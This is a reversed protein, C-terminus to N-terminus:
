FRFPSTIKQWVMGLFRGGLTALRKMTGSQANEPKFIREKIFELKAAIGKQNKLREFAIEYGYETSSELENNIFYIMRKQVNRITKSSVNYEIFSFSHDFLKETTYLVALVPDACKLDRLVRMFDGQCQMFEDSQSYIIFDYLWSLRIGGQRVTYYLHLCLYILNIHPHIRLSGNNDIAKSWIFESPINFSADAPLIGRHLEIYVGKYSLGPLHHDSTDDKAVYHPESTVAGMELMTLYMKEAHEPLMLVDIDSMARLTMDDYIYQSLFIGKLPIYRYHKDAFVHILEQWVSSITMNRVMNSFYAKKLQEKLESTFDLKKENIMQFLVAALGNKVASEVLVDVDYLETLAPRKGSLADIIWQKENNEILRKNM